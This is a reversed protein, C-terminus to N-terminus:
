KSSFNQTLRADVISEGFSRRPLSHFMNGNFLVARNKKAKVINWVEWSSEKSADFEVLKRQMVQLSSKNSSLAKLNMKRHKVFYTGFEESKHADCEFLYIILVLYGPDTHGFKLSSNNYDRTLLGFWGTDSEFTVPYPIANRLCKQSKRQDAEHLLLQHGPYRSQMENYRKNKKIEEHWDLSSFFNNKVIVASENLARQIESHSFPNAIELM